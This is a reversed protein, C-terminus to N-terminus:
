ASASESMRRRLFDLVVIEEDSLGEVVAVSTGRGRGVGAPLSGDLHSTIVDPHVYCKRCVAPTNGLRHAVSAVVQTINRRAQVTSGSEMDRLACAALVTGAWTRFDKATFPQGTVYGLYANVDESEVTGRAGDPEVYQFLEHGPLDQCRKVITAVRRDRVNVSHVKGSKGRFEFRVGAGRVQVHRNRLTTLGFSENQRAYEENGVRIYTIDLLRVVTAVVKERPLGPLALDHAVRERLGPLAAGFAWMSTFKTEDRVERWRPHYRYQKRRRADRGTAQLHGRPNPCIWVDTWAPPIALHRIRQITEPDRITAGDPTTYTFAGGRRPRRRIGPTVDPTYRLGAAAASEHPDVRVGCTSRASGPPSGAPM